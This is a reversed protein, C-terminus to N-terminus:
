GKRREKGLYLLEYNTDHDQSGRVGKEERIDRAKVKKGSGRESLEGGPIEEDMKERQGLSVWPKIEKAKEWGGGVKQQEKL